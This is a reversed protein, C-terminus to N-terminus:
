GGFNGVLTKQWPKGGLANVLLYFTECFSLAAQTATHVLTKLTLWLRTVTQLISWILFILGTLRFLPITNLVYGTNDHTIISLSLVYAQQSHTLLQRTM